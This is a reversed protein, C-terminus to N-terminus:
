ALRPFRRSSTAEKPVDSQLANQRASSELVRSARVGEGERGVDRFDAVAVSVNWAAGMYPAGEMPHECFRCRGALAGESEHQVKWGAESSVAKRLGQEILRDIQRFGVFPQGVTGVIYGVEEPLLLLHDHFVVAVGEMQGRRTVM